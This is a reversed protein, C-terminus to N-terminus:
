KFLKEYKTLGESALKAKPIFRLSASNICYRLYLPAPGDKFVHGLHSDGNTSRVETRTSFLGKDVKEIINKKELPKTFSPWGTGSKFKDKSSFLPEGSVIDVYVGEKKNNWFENEFPKETGEEQTVYYQLKTLRKKLNGKSFKPSKSNVINQFSIDKGKWFKNIYDDRGSAARYYKYKTKTILNKRYYDQHYDVAPYFSKFSHIPTIIIKPLVKRENLKNKYLTAIEKQLKNHTFIATTYQYGRDVFQGGADTPDINKWFVELLKKYNVKSSDYTVQVVELHKTKGSSVQPYTPNKLMGGSYGSIVTSVGKIKEFPAEMCWFCGGAFTAKEVKTLAQTNLTIVISILVLIKSIV